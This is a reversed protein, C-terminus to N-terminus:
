HSVVTGDAERAKERRTKKESEYNLGFVFMLM